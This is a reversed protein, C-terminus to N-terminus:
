LFIPSDIIAESENYSPDLYRRDHVIEMQFLLSAVASDVLPIFLYMSNIGDKDYFAGSCSTKINNYKLLEKLAKSDSIALEYHSIPTLIDKYDTSSDPVDFVIDKYKM